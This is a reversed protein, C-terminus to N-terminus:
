YPIVWQAISRDCGDSVDDTCNSKQDTQWRNLLKKNVSQSLWYIPLRSAHTKFIKQYFQVDPAFDVNVNTQKFYDVLPQISSKQSGCFGFRVNRIKTNRTKIKEIMKQFFRQPLIIASSDTFFIPAGYQQTNLDTEIGHALFLLHDYQDDILCHDIDLISKPYHIITNPSQKFVRQIKQDILSNKQFLNIVCTKALSTHHIFVSFLFIFLLRM